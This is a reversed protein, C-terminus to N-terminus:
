PAIAADDADAQEDPDNVEGDSEDACVGRVSAKIETPTLYQKASIPALARTNDVGGKIQVTRMPFPIEIDEQRYRQHLQKIFEHKLLYQDAFEQAWLIVTFDISSDGFGRYRIVPTETAMGGPVSRMVAEAVEVTVKEVQELDSDYGVGVDVLVALTKEPAHYNTVISSTLQANPIIILNNGIHKITTTRWSIDTVYGEEGSSLRIYDGPQVQQAALIQVGSVLDTLTSQLALSVALGTVGLAALAPSIEINFVRLIILAGLIFITVRVINTVLSLAPRAHPKSSVRLLGASVNAVVVTLSFIFLILLIDHIIALLQKQQQIDQPAQQLALSVGLLLGWLVFKRRLARIIIDDGQWATRQAFKALRALVILEIVLGACLSGLVIGAPLLWDVLAASIETVTPM